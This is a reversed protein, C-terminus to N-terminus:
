HCANYNQCTTGDPPCGTDSCCSSSSEGPDPIGNGCTTCAPDDTCYYETGLDCGDPFCWRFVKMKNMPCYGSAGCGLKIWGSCDCGSVLAKCNSDCTAGDPPDCEEAGEKEGNGCAQGGGCKYYDVCTIVDPCGGYLSVHRQPIQTPLCGESGCVDWPIVALLSNECACATSCGDGSNTNGDDCVEGADLVGNGCVGTGPCRPDVPCRVAGVECEPLNGPLTCTPDNKLCRRQYMQDPPDGYLGCGWDRWEANCTCNDSCEPSSSGTGDDCEEGADRIGDGCGSVCPACRSTAGCQLSTAPATQYKETPQCGDTGCSAGADVWARECQCTASCGDGNIVNSDDCEEAGTM